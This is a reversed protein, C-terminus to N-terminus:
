KASLQEELKKNSRFCVWRAPGSEVTLHFNQNKEAHVIDGASILREEENGVRTKLEGTYVYLFLENELPSQEESYGKSFECYEFTIREGIVRSFQNASYAPQDMRGAIEFYCQDLGEIIADSQVSKDRTEWSGDKIRSAIEETSVPKDPVADNAAVGVMNWTRDKVYLYSTPADETAKMSHRANPPVHIFTGPEVIRRDKGVVANIKGSIPFIMLENPHYHLESGTGASKNNQRLMIYTGEILAGKATSLHPNPSIQELDEFRYYPM